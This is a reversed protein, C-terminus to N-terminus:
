ASTVFAIRNGDGRWVVEGYVGIQYTGPVMPNTFSVGDEDDGDVACTGNVLGFPVADDANAAVNQLTGPDADACNGLYPQVAVNLRHSPGVDLVETNYDGVATGVVVDPNDGFDFEATEVSTIFGFDVTLNTDNDGDEATPENNDVLTVPRSVVFAGSTDGNDDGNQDDDPDPTPENGTSTRKTELVQGGEFNVQDVVVIYNGPAM